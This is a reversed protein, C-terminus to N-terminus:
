RTRRNEPVHGSRLFATLAARATRDNMVIMHGRRPLVLLHATPIIRATEEFLTSSYCRDRAGGLIITPSEIPAACTGLDFSDEAEITTAMDRWAQPDRILRPGLLWGAVGAVTQGRWPPVLTAALVRSAARSAGARVHAAVRAQERRTAPDLRCATSILALRRVVEPHDAALQQAISGGTSIGIM